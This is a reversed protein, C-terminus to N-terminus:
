WFDYPDWQPGEQEQPLEREPIEQQPRHKVFWWAGMLFCIVLDDHEEETEAEYVKRKTKENIKGRFRKFQERAEEAWKLGAAVRVREQQVLLQGAAVLDTKPVHIEKLTRMKLRPAGPFVEAVDAYVERVKGAGTTVIPVPRLGKERMIEVVAEGVGTGDVILEANEVLSAKQLLEGIEDVIPHYHVGQKQTIYVIDYYHVVRNLQKLLEYGLVVQPNDKMVMIATYDRKKALDVLVAYEKV